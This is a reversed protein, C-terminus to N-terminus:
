RASRSWGALFSDAALSEVERNEALSWERRRRQELKELLRCRRDAALVKERQAAMQQEAARKRAALAQLDATLRARYSALAWLDCAETAPAQRVAQEARARALELRRASLDCEEIGALIRRLKSQELELETRRWALVRGLPFHFGRM